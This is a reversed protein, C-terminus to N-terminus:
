LIQQPYYHVEFHQVLQQPKVRIMLEYKGFHRQLLEEHTLIFIVGSNAAVNVTVSFKEM